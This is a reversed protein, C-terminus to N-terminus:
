NGREPDGTDTEPDLSKIVDQLIYSLGHMAEDPVEMEISAQSMLFALAGLKTRARLTFAVIDFDKQGDTRGRRYADEIAKQVSGATKLDLASPATM